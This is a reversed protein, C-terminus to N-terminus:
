WGLCDDIGNIGPMSPVRGIKVKAGRSKLEAALRDQASAVNINTVANADFLITVERKDM